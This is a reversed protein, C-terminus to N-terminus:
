ELTLTWLVWMTCIKCCESMAVMTELTSFSINPRSATGQNYDALKQSYASQSVENQPTVATCLQRSCPKEEHWHQCQQFASGVAESKIAPSQKTEMFIWFADNFTLPHRNKQMSSNLSVGKSWRCKWTLCWKILSGRQHWRICLFLIYHFVSPFTWGRNGYWWCRDRINHALTIPPM